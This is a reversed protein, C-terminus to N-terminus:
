ECGSGVTSGPFEMVVPLILGHQLIAEVLKDITVNPEVIATKSVPDIQIVNLLASIDVVRQKQSSRTSNTSGHFIRYSEKRKYYEKVVASIHSVITDHRMM